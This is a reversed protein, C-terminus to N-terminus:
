QNCEREGVKSQTFSAGTIPYKYKDIEDDIPNVILEGLRKNVTTLEGSLAKYKEELQKSTFNTYKELCCGRGNQKSVFANKVQERETLKSNIEALIRRTPSLGDQMGYATSSIFLISTLALTYAICHKKM